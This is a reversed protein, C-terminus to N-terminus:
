LLSNLPEGWGVSRLEFTHATDVWARLEAIDFSVVCRHTDVVGVIRSFLNIMVCSVFILRETSMMCVWLVISRGLLQGFDREWNKYITRM